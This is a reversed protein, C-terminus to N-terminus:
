LYKFSHVQMQTRWHKERERGVVSLSKKIRSMQWVSIVISLTRTLTQIFSDETINFLLIILNVQLGNQRHILSFLSSHPPSGLLHQKVKARKLAPHLRGMEPTFHYFPLVKPQVLPTLTENESMDSVWVLSISLGTAM